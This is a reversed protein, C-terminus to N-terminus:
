SRSPISCMRHSPSCSMYYTVVTGWLCSCIHCYVYLLPSAVRSADTSVRLPTVQGFETFNLHHRAGWARVACHFDLCVLVIFIDWSSFNSTFARIWVGTSM